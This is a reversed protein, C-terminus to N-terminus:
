GRQKLKRILEDLDGRQLEQAFQNRFSHLLSVGEISMDYIRWGHRSNVLSYDLPIKQGNGRIIVSQIHVFRKGATPSRMPKFEIKEDHYDQLAGSYTRIVLRVFERTFIKKQNDSAKAWIRRGLVSRAMGYVDVKPLLYQKVIRYVIKPNSKLSAENAELENIIKNATAQMMPLPSSSAWSLWPFFLLMYILLFRYKM